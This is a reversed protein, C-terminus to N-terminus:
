GKQLHYTGIEFVNYISHQKFSDVLTPSLPNKKGRRNQTLHYARVLDSIQLKLHSIHLLSVLAHWSLGLQSSQAKAHSLVKLPLCGYLTHM